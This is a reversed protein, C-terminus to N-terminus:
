AGCGACGNERREVRNEWRRVVTKGCRCLLVDGPKTTVLVDGCKDCEVEYQGVLVQNRSEM